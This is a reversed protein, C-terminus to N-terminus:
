DKLCKWILAAVGATVAVTAVGLIIGKTIDEGASEQGAKYDKLSNNSGNWIHEKAEPSMEGVKQLAKILDEYKITKTETLAIDQM